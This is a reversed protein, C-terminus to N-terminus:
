HGRVDRESWAPAHPEDGELAALEEYRSTLRVFHLRVDDSRAAKALQRCTNSRARYLESRREPSTTDNDQLQIM